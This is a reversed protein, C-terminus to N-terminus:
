VKVREQTVADDARWDAPKFYRTGTYLPQNPDAAIPRAPAYTPIHLEPDSPVFSCVCDSWFGHANFNCFVRCSKSISAARVASLISCILLLVV